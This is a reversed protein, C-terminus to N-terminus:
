IWSPESPVALGTSLAMEPVRGLGAFRSEAHNLLEGMRRVTQDWLTPDMDVSSPLCHVNPNRGRKARYLSSGGTFVVDAQRLLHHELEAIEIPAHRFNALDDMCDYVVVEPALAHAAPYALPTSLWATHQGIGEHAALQELLALFREQEDPYFGTRVAVVHPRHVTLGRSVERREWGDTTAGNLPEEIFLVPRTKALRSMVHQPRQNTSDWRLHSYVLLPTRAM